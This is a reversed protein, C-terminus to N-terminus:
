TLLCLTAYLLLIQNQKGLIDVVISKRPVSFLHLQVYDQGDSVPFKKTFSKCVPPPIRQLLVPHQLHKSAFTVDWMYNM